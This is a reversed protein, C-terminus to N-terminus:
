PSASQCNVYGELEYDGPRGGYRDYLQTAQQARFINKAYAGGECLEGARRDWFEQALASGGHLPVVVLLILRGDETRREQYGYPSGRERDMPAYTPATVCGTVAISLLVPGLLTKRKM